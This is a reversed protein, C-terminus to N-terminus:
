ILSLAIQKSKDHRYWDRHYVFSKKIDKRRITCRMSTCPLCFRVLYYVAYVRNWFSEIRVQKSYKTQYLIKSCFLSFIFSSFFKIKTVTWNFCVSLAQPLCFLVWFLVVDNALFIFIDKSATKMRFVNWVLFLFQLLLCQFCYVVHIHYLVLEVVAM